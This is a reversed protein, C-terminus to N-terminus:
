ANGGVKIIDQILQQAIQDIDHHMHATFDHNVVIQQHNHQGADIDVAADNGTLSIKVQALMHDGDFLSGVITSKDFNWTANQLLGKGHQFLHAGGM